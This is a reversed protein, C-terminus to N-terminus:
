GEDGSQPMAPSDSHPPIVWTNDPPIAKATAAPAAAPMALAEILRDVDRHFRTDSIEVANRRSLLALEDPLQPVRPMAAGGVLVPVVRVKRKLVAAVELRVFDEPDDLRRKGEADTVSVWNKGILVIATECATVKRNIVEVFDEGPELQDIDMFVQGTGFYATLRDYLRGAYPATDDRRYSIFITSM